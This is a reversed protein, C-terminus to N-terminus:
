IVQKRHNGNQKDKLGGITKLRAAIMDLAIRSKDRLFRSM